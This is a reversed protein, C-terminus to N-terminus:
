ILVTWSPRRRIYSRRIARRLARRFYLSILYSVIHFFNDCRGNVLIALRRMYQLAAENPMLFRCLRLRERIDKPIVEYAFKIWQIPVNCTSSFNAWDFVIEFDKSIYQPLNLTQIRFDTVSTSIWSTICVQLIYYLLLELDLVEVDIKSVSLVFM